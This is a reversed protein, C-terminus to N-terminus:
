IGTYNGESKKVMFVPHTNHAFPVLRVPARFLLFFKPLYNYFM